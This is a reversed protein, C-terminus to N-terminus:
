KIARFRAPFYRSLADKATLVDGVKIDEALSIGSIPDTNMVEVFEEEILTDFGVDICIQELTRM